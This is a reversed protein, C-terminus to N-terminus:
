LKKLHATMTVQVKQTESPNFHRGFLMFVIDPLLSMLILLLIALWVVGQSLIQLFVKYMDLSITDGFNLQIGKRDVSLLVCFFFAKNKNVSSTMQSSERILLYSLGKRRPLSKRLVLSHLHTLWCSKPPFVYYGDDNYPSTVPSSECISNKVSCLTAISCIAVQQHQLWEFCRRLLTAVSHEALFRRQSDDRTFDDKSHIKASSFTTTVSVLDWIYSTKDNEIAM